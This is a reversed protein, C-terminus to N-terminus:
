YHVRFLDSRSANDSSSGAGEPELDRRAVRESHAQLDQEVVNNVILKVRLLRNTALGTPDAYHEAQYDTQYRFYADRAPIAPLPASNSAQASAPLRIGANDVAGAAFDFAACFDLREWHPQQDAGAHCRESFGRAGEMGERTWVALFRRAGREVTAFDLASEGLPPRADALPEALEMAALTGGPLGDPDYSRALAAAPRTVEAVFMGEEAATRDWRQQDFRAAVAILMMALGALIVPTTWNWGTWSRRTAAPSRRHAPGAAAQAPGPRSQFASGAQEGKEAAIRRDLRARRLPDNLTRYADLVEETRARADAGAFRDPHYRKLCARYAAQLIFDPAEPAIGLVEYANKM